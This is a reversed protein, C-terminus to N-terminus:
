KPEPTPVINIGLKTEIRTLRIQNQGHLRYILLQTKWYLSVLAAVTVMLHVFTAALTLLQDPTLTTM